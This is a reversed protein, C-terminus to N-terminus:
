GGLAARVSDYAVDLLERLAEPAINLAPVFYVVDGLPRLYAGRALAAAYVRWGADDLYGGGGGALDVAGILGTQRAGAVTELGTLRALGEALIAAREPIGELVREERYVALVERALRAGLPNGTFSHGYYFTRGSERAGLFGDFVATTALTAAFPLMGGSLGKSTCLLDPTIGAQECAWLTGARGMGVFVEDAVFLAGAARTREYLGRLVDPPYMLMGAAGQVLPEVVVAAVTDGVEALVADFAALAADFAARDTLEHAGPAPAHLVEFLLPGFREHFLEIGGISVCGVTEGHFAHRFSVFRRRQPAGNQQFLQFAMKLAAEVATSGDDSYFVHALGPPAAAVLEHALAAAQEHTIGALACHALRDVQEHLAARLRPHGHGLVSTWWSGNGDLYRRGDADFLWPGEAREIVLPGPGARHAAMQTYPHWVHARDWALIQDRDPRPM